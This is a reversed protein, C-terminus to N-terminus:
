EDEFPVTDWYCCPTVARSSKSQSVFEAPCHLSQSSLPSPPAGTCIPTAIDPEPSTSFDPESCERQLPTIDGTVFAAYDEKSESIHM